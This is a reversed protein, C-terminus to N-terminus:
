VGSAFNRKYNATVAAVAAEEEAKYAALEQSTMKNELAETRTVERQKELEAVLGFDQVKGIDHSTLLSTIQEMSGSILNGEKDATALEIDENEQVTHMSIDVNDTNINMDYCIYGDSRGNMSLPTICIDGTELVKNINNQVGMEALFNRDNFSKGTLVADKITKLESESNTVIDSIDAGPSLEQIACLQVLAENTYLKDQLKTNDIGHIEAFIKQTMMEESIEGDLCDRIVDSMRMESENNKIENVINKANLDGAYAAFIYNLNTIRTLNDESVTLGSTQNYLKTKEDFSGSNDFSAQLAQAAEVKKKMKKVDVHEEKKKAATGNKQALYQQYEDNEQEQSKQGFTGKLWDEIEDGLKIGEKMKVDNFEGVQDFNKRNGDVKIPGGVDVLEGDIRIEGSQAIAEETKQLREMAKARTKANEREMDEDIKNTTRAKRFDSQAQEAKKQIKNTQVYFGDKLSRVNDSANAITEMINKKAM